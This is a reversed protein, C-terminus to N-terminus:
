ICGKTSNVGTIRPDITIAECLARAFAKFIAEIMHHDNKGYLVKIHLTIGANFALARFFEDVLQTDMNGVMDKNFDGDFVLYPRGSIDLSVFALAEDMPVYASGYRKIKSRDGLADCICKGLVIGTDEVTHHADVVLDGDAKINLDMLSHKGMLSLMHDFFGIGTTVNYKGSGDLNLSVKVYTETTKRSKECARENGM